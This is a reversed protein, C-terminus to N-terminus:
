FSDDHLWVEVHDDVLDALVLADIPRHQDLGELLGNEGCGLLGETEGTLHLRLVVLLGAADIEEQDDVHDLVVGLLAALDGEATRALV